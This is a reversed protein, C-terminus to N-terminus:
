QRLMLDFYDRRKEMQACRERVKMAAEHNAQIAAIVEMERKKVLNIACVLRYSEAEPRHTPFHNRTSGNQAHQFAYAVFLGDQLDHKEAKAKILAAFKSEIDAIAIGLKEAHLEDRSM